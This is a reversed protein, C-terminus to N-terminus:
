EKIFKRQFFEGDIQTRVFYTGAPEQSLDFTYPEMLNKHEAVSVEQGLSNILQLRGSKPERIDFKVSVHDNAPSPYAVVGMGAPDRKLDVVTQSSLVFQQRIRPIGVSVLFVYEGDKEEVHMEEVGQEKQHNRWLDFEFFVTDRLNLTPMLSDMMAKYSKVLWGPDATSEYGGGIYKIEPESVRHIEVRFSGMAYQTMAQDTTDKIDSFNLNYLENSTVHEGKFQVYGSIDTYWVPCAVPLYVVTSLIFFFLTSKLNFHKM